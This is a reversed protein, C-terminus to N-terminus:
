FGEQQEDGYFVQGSSDSRHLGAGGTLGGQYNGNGMGTGNSYASSGAYGGNGNGNGNGGGYPRAKYKTHNSGLGYLEGRFKSDDCSGDFHKAILAFFTQATLLSDSGAQHMPGIREVQLQDGMAQLGGHMGEVATMMYKIDYIYPFYIHLLEMFHEEQLPLELCTLTKLLYGFDYSSHFSVWKVEDSLVLGSMMMLEGFHPVDIGFEQFKEFDIGSTRLLQISDEAHTDDDISFKFNFQWCTCGEAWNGEGDTFSLGLQILKLMDVNVRLTQYTIETQSYDGVPRAVVGPFETDMAIYPYDELIDRINAM